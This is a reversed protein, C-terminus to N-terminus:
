VSDSRSLARIGNLQEKVKEKEREGEREGASAGEGGSLEGNM